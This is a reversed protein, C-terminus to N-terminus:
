GTINFEGWGLGPLEPLQLPQSGHGRIEPQGVAQRGAEVTGGILPIAPLEERVLFVQFLELHIGPTHTHGITRIGSVMHTMKVTRQFALRNSRICYPIEAQRFHYGTHLFQKSHIDAM